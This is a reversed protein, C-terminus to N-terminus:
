KSDNSSIESPTNYCVKMLFLGQPPATEGAFRRDKASFISPIQEPEMRGAGIDVLTGTINRVMKYLFGDAEFELRVGGEQECLDLRYLTRLPDKRASGRTAENAFSSFNRQGLFFPIAKQIRDLNCPSFVHYRYLRDFPSATPNLHLHYHYIKSTASYRAHFDKEMPEVDLIRIDSPLLANLSFRLRYPSLPTLTDFHATQGRAHVGADTRGSGTLAIPHRLITELGKQILPQIAKGTKQVQWGAYHTGDYAITLKCRQMLLPENFNTKSM